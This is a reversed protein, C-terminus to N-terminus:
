SSAGQSGRSARAIALGILALTFTTVVSIAAGNPGSSVSKFLAVLSTTMVPVMRPAAFLLTVVRPLGDLMAPAGTAFALGAAAAVLMTPFRVAPKAVVAPAVDRAVRLAAGVDHSELAMAGIRMMCAGCSDAHVRAVPDIVDQADAICSLALESLHEGEWTEVDTLRELAATM